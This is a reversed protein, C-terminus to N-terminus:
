ATLINAVLFVCDHLLTETVSSIPMLTYIYIHINQILCFKPTIFLSISKYVTYVREFYMLSAFAATRRVVYTKIANINLAM